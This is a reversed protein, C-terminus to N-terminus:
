RQLREKCLIFREVDYYTQKELIHDVYMNHPDWIM